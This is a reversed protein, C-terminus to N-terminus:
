PDISLWPATSGCPSKLSCWMSLMASYLWCSRDSWMVFGRVEEMRGADVYTNIITNYTPATPALGAARIDALVGDFRGLDGSAAYGKLLINFVRVDAQLFPRALLEYLLAEAEQTRGVGICANM